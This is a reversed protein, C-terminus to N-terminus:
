IDWWPIALRSLSMHQAQFDDDSKNNHRLQLLWKLDVVLYVEIVSLIGPGIGAALM